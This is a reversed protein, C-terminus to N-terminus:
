STFIPSVGSGWFVITIALMGVFSVMCVTLISSAFLFGKEQNIGMVTPVGKYLLNVSMGIAVLTILMDLWLIPWSGLVGALFMPTLSYATLKLCRRYRPETGYTKAMWHIFAAIVAVAVLIAFYASISLYLASETTLKYTNDGVTWGVYTAGVFASAPPIAAFFILFKLYIETVSQQKDSIKKWVESPGYLLAIANTASM